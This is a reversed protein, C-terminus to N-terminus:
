CSACSCARATFALYEYLRCKGWKSGKRLGSYQFIEVYLVSGELVHFLPLLVTPSSYGSFWRSSEEWQSPARSTSSFVLDRGGFWENQLYGLSVRLVLSYFSLFARVLARRNSSLWIGNKRRNMCWCPKWVDGQDCPEACCALLLLM